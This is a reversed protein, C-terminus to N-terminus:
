GNVNMGIDGLFVGYRLLWPTFDWLIISLLVGTVVSYM